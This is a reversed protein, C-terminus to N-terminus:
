DAKKPMLKILMNSRFGFTRVFSTEKEYLGPVLASFTKKSLLTLNAPDQYYKQGFLGLIKRYWSDPLFHFLPLMTHFEIPFWRYPTSIFCSKGVRLLENLYEGQAQRNGVHEIAAFNTVLDFQGDEFPLRKSSQRVFSLGPYREELFGADEFSVTTLNEKHPYVDEFYNYIPSDVGTVGVDLVQMTKTVPVMELFRSYIKGHLKLFFRQVRPPTKPAQWSENAM